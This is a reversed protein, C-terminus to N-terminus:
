VDNSARETILREKLHVVISIVLHVPKRTYEYSSEALHEHEALRNMRYIFTNDRLRKKRYDNDTRSTETLHSFM